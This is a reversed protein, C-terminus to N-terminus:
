AEEQMCLYANYKGLIVVLIHELGCESRLTHCHLDETFVHPRHGGGGQIHTPRHNYCSHHQRVDLHLGYLVISSRGPGGPISFGTRMHYLFPSSVCPDQLYTNGDVALSLVKSVALMRNCVLSSPMVAPGVMARVMAWLWLSESCSSARQAWGTGPITFPLWLIITQWAVSNQTNDNCPPPYQFLTTARATNETWVPRLM